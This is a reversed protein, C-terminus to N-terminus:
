DSVNSVIMTAVLVLIKGTPSCFERTVRKKYRDSQSSHIRAVLGSPVRQQIHSQVTLAMDTTQVFIITKKPLVLPPHIPRQFLFDLNSLNSTSGELKKVSFCLNKRNTSLIIRSTKLPNDPLRLSEVIKAMVKPPM